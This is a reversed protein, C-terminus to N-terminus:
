FGHLCAPLAVHRNLILFVPLSVGQVRACMESFVAGGVASPACDAIRYSHHIQRLIRSPPHPPAPKEGTRTNPSTGSAGETGAGQSTGQIGSRQSTGMSSGDNTTGASNADGMSDKKNKKYKKQKGQSQQDQSTSDSQNGPQGAAWNYFFNDFAWMRGYGFPCLDRDLPSVVKIPFDPNVVSPLSVM